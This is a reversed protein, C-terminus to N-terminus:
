QVESLSRWGDPAPVPTGRSPHRCVIYVDPAEWARGGRMTISQTSPCRDVARRGIDTVGPAACGSATAACATIIVAALKM